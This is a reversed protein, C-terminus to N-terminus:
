SLRAFEGFHKVAAKCYAVYAAEATNFHGLHHGKGGYTITAMFRGNRRLSVGKFGTVSDSRLRANRLNQTQTAIRLNKRTNNLGNCDRHDVGQHPKPNLIARHMPLSTRRYDPLRIMRVAYFTFGIKQAYWKFSSLHTFDEDDVLAFKGQTLPIKKM